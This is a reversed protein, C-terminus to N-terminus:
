LYKHSVATSNTPGTEATTRAMVSTSHQYVCIPRKVASTCITTLVVLQIYHVTVAIDSCLLLVIRQVERLRYNHFYEVSLRLSNNAVRGWYM